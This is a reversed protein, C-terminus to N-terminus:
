RIFRQHEIVQQQESWAPYGGRGLELGRVIMSRTDRPDIVDDVIMHAGAALADTGVRFEEVREAVFADRQEEPTAQWEKRFVLKVAPEAGMFSIEASPWALVLDTMAGMANMAYTGLGYSKRIFVTIKPVTAEAHTEMMGMARSIMREREVKTGVLMGPIDHLFVIPLNFTGCFEIFLRIKDCGDADIAGAQVMPNSAIIGTPHGDFRALLTHVSKAYDPRIPFVVADDVILRVLKLMDYARNPQDPVLRLLGDERRDPPDDTPRLPPPLAANSPLFSLLERIIALCHTDDDAIRSAQGNRAHVRWGGLEEDSVQEGIGAEIVPPGSIGVAAGKVVVVFDSLGSRFAPDGYSEGLIGTIIPMLRPKRRIQGMYGAGVGANQVGLLKHVRGGGGDGLTVLPWGRMQCRQVIRNQKFGGVDGGTGAMVTKDHAVIGVNRGDVRGYGAVMGDGPSRDALEPDPDHGLLGIELFSNRDVLMEIRARATERGKAQQRAIKEAGGGQAFRERRAALERVQEAQSM